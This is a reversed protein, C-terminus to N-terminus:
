YHVSSSNNKRKGTSTVTLYVNGGLGGLQAVNFSIGTKDTAVAKSTAIETGATSVSYVKVIDGPLLGIIIIVDQVDADYANTASKYSELLGKSTVTATAATSTGILAGSASEL